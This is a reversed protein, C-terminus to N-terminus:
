LSSMGKVHQIGLKDVLSPPFVRSAFARRFIESFESDLGGIGMDEFKFNPALIANPRAKKASSRLKVTSEAGKMISIDTKDFIVGMDRSLRGRSSTGRQQEEALELTTVGTVKGKFYQGHYEFAIVLNSALALGNFVRAIHAGIDEASFVEALEKGRANFSIEM